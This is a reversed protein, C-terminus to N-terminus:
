DCVEKNNLKIEIKSVDIYDSSLDALIEVNFKSCISQLWEIMDFHHLTKRYDPHFEIAEEVISTEDDCTKIFHFAERGQDLIHDFKFM